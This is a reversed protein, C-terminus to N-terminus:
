QTAIPLRSNANRFDRSGREIDTLWETGDWREPILGNEPNLIITGLPLDTLELGGKLNTPIVYTSGSTLGLLNRIANVRLYSAEHISTHVITNDTRVTVVIQHAHETFAYEPYRWRLDIMGLKAYIARINFMQSYFANPPPPQTHTPTAYLLSSNGILLATIITSLFLKKTKM